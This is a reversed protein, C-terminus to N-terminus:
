DRHDDGDAMGIHYNLGGPDNAEVGYDAIGKWRYGPVEHLATMMEEPRYYGLYSHDEIILVPHCRAITERMGRLIRIDAGETDIKAVDVQTFGLSDFTVAPVTVGVGTDYPLVRMGGSRIEESTGHALHLVSPEDWLAYALLQVKGGLHNMVLNELLRASTMPNAEVAVVKAGKHAARITYHGVHAGVDLFTMGPEIQKMIFDHVSNGFPEQEAHHPGFGDHTGPEVVWRFGDHSQVYLRHQGAMIRPEFQSM